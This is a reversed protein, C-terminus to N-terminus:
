LWWDSQNVLSMYYNWDWHPGPDTHTAGPVESHAIIHSRTKPINYRDALWKTLKASARYMSDTYWAPEDVYGEHELGISQQNYTSNGAHWAVDKNRVMQTIQGDSSRILYHASVNASPNQFWSIAGSYSGQTTHIIIYNITSSERNAETYNSSDAPVWRANPYDATAESTVDEIQEYKQRNPDVQTPKLTLTEGDIKQQAGRNIIQFVEDAYWKRALPSSLGSYSAVTTYWDSLNTPIRDQNNEKALSALVAAAGRINQNTDTTLEKKSINLLQSAKQLSRDSPNEALHMIGYGNLQSPKGKHDKWRSEAYGIAM